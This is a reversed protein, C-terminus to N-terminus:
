DTSCLLAVGRLKWRQPGSGECPLGVRFIIYRDTRKPYKYVPCSYTSSMREGDSSKKKNIATVYLIPLPAFLKKPEPDELIAKAFRAGELFLGHIYVGESQVDKIMEYERDKVISHYVVDDLSWSEKEKAGGKHMRTVEQKM